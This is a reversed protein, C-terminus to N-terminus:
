TPVMRPCSTRNVTTTDKAAELGHRKTQWRVKGAHTFHSQQRRDTSSSAVGILDKELLKAASMVTSSYTPRVIKMASCFDAVVQEKTAYIEEAMLVSTILVAPKEEVVDALENSEGRIPSNLFPRCQTFYVVPSYFRSRNSNHNIARDIEINSTKAASRERVRRRSVRLSV